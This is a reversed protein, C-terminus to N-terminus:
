KADPGVLTDWRLLSMPDAACNFTLPREIIHFSAPAHCEKVAELLGLREAQAPGAVQPVRAWLDFKLLDVRRVELREFERLDPLPPPRQEAGAVELVVERVVMPGPAPDDAKPTNSIHDRM